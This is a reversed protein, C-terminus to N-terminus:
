GGGSWGSVLCRDVELHDLLATVDTAVDAIRRGAKRSSSGYGPRSFTVLRLGRAHASRQMSRMQTVAGPTVHHFLLVPGEAPGTDAVDLDRGDPLQITTM